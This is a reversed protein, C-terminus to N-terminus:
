NEDTVLELLNELHLQHCAYVLYGRVEGRRSLCCRVFAERLGPSTSKELCYLWRLTRSVSAPPTSATGGGGASDTPMKEQLLDQVRRMLDGFMVSLDEWLGTLSISCTALHEQQACGWVINFLCPLIDSDSDFTTLASMLPLNSVIVDIVPIIARLSNHYREFPILHPEDECVKRLYVGFGPYLDYYKSMLTQVGTRNSSFIYLLRHIVEVEDGHLWHMQKQAELISSLLQDNCWVESISDDVRVITEVASITNVLLGANTSSCLIFTVRDFFEPTFHIADLWAQRNSHSALAAQLLRFLEMLIRTDTSGMLNLINIIFTPEETMQTCESEDLALNALIGLSIETLRPCLVRVVAGSFVPVLRFERLHPLVDRNVTIDWLCCLEEELESDITDSVITDPDGPEAQLFKLVRLILSYLWMKSYATEGINDSVPPTSTESADRPPSPNRTAM